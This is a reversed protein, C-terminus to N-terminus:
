IKVYKKRQKNIFYYGLITYLLAESWLIIYNDAVLDFEAGMQNLKLFGDIALTSPSLLAISNIFEPILEKPWVFGTAFVLPLSSFLITPTAIERSNFLSGLLLGLAISAALFAVGFNLLDFIDGLREVGLYSFSFGFYFLMHVFFISGFIIFRAAIIEYINAELYYFTERKILSENIGGGLIGMGILLTQQLILIFIAPIVYEIYSNNSNFLNIITFSFPEYEKKAAELPHGDKLISVIEIKASETFLARSLAEVVGSYILFYSADAGVSITPSSKLYIDRKFNKPIVIVGRTKGEILAEKADDESLDRRTVSLQPTADLMFILDRSMDSRDLDVVSVGLESVSEKAYPQPYLFSYLIVGAIITLVIAIDSFVRKTEARLVELFSM